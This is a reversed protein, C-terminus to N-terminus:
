ALGAQIMLADKLQPPLEKGRAEARRLIGLCATKSLYYKQHPRAELIQSLSSAVADSPSEWFQADMVRWAMSFEDGLLVAGASEWRGSEPRPVDCASYKIRVIEEIVARFDEGEASSFAGPVNEWVLYRPRVLYAPVNRQEDAKRMEKAIRTQEMFLGSRAGALGARQGAVSLDQCPSGGCIVDVPPLQAGDLKTIDGVHLMEPFRIKTVEIPFAEIESAWVPTIGNRIAAM